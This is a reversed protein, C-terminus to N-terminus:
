TTTAEQWIKKQQHCLDQARERYFAALQRIQAAKVELGRAMLIYCNEEAALRAAKTEVEAFTM